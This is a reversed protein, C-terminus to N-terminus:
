SPEFGEEEAMKTSFAGLLPLKKTIPDRELLYLAPPAIRVRGERLFM